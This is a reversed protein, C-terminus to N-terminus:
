RPKSNQFGFFLCHLHTTLFLRALTVKLLLQLLVPITSFPTTGNGDAELSARLDVAGGICHIDIAREGLPLDATAQIHGSAEM